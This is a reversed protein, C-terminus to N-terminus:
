EVNLRIKNRSEKPEIVEIKTKKVTFNNINMLAPLSANQKM